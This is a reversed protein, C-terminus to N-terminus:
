YIHANAVDRGSKKGALRIGKSVPRAGTFDIQPARM